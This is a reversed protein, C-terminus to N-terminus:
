QEIDSAYCGYTKAQKGNWVWIYFYDGLNGGYWFAEIKDAEPFEKSAYEVVKDRQQRRAEMERSTLRKEEKAGAIKEERSMTSEVENQPFQADPLISFYGGRGRYSQILNNEKLWKKADKIKGFNLGTIDKVEKEGYKVDPTLANFIKKANDM